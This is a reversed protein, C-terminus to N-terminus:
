EVALKERITKARLYDREIPPLEKGAQECVTATGTLDMLENLTILSIEDVYGM